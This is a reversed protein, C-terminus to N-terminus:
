AHQVLKKKGLLVCAVYATVLQRFHELRVNLAIRLNITCV